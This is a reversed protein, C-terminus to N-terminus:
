EEKYLYATIRGTGWEREEQIVFRSKKAGKGKKPRMPGGTQKPLPLRVKVSKATRKM